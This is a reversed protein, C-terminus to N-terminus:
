RRTTWATFCAAVVHHKVSTIDGILPPEVPPANDVSIRAGPVATHVTLRAKTRVVPAAKTAEGASNGLRAELDAKADVAEARREGSEVRELYEKYHGIAQRGRAADGKELYLKREAQALAFAVNPKAALAYAQEFSTVAAEYRGKSYAETGAGYFTKAQALAEPTPEAAWLPGSFALLTCAALLHVTKM